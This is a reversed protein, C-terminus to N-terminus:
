VVTVGPNKALYQEHYDEAFYFATETDIETTVPDHGSARLAEDYTTRAASAQRKQAKVHEIVRRLLM